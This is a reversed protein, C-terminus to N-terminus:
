DYKIELSFTPATATETGAAEDYTVINKWQTKINLRLEKAKEISFVETYLLESQGLTVVMSDEIKGVVTAEPSLTVRISSYSEGVQEALDAEAIIQSRNVISFAAPEDEYMETETGDDAILTVKELTFSMSRPEANGESGEPAEFAGFMAVLLKEKLSLSFTEACGTLGTFTTLWLLHKILTKKGIKM